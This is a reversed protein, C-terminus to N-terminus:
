LPVRVPWWLNNGAPVTSPPLRTCGAQPAATSWNPLEPEDLLELVEHQVVQQASVGLAQTIVAEDTGALDGL